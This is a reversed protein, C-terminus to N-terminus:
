EGAIAKALLTKGTGPNGVLLCGKPIKGGLKKFKDPSKLFDVLEMIEDKAEDIGAVDKFTIKTNKEMYMKAKSRAFSLPNNNGKGMKRLFYLWVAIILLFPLWSILAAILSTKMNDGPVVKIRVGSSDLDKVLDAYNPANTQFKTGNKTIGTIFNNDKIEVAIIEGARVSVLFDSFDILEENNRQQTLNNSFIILVGFIALWVLLNKTNKQM